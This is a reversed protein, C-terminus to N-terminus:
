WLKAWFATVLLNVVAVPTLFKWSFSMLQDYRFRPMTGRLWICFLMFSLVKLAFAAVGLWWPTLAAPVLPVSWGGFFLTALISGGLFMHAYEALFFLAFRMGSYETHFGAVLESEAEPLDFPTRNAEAVACILAIVFAVPQSFVFWWGDQQASMVERLSLSGSLLVISLLALGMPLEYSILQATARLSGMISYKSNSAWGALIVGYSGLSGMALLFLLAVPLESVQLKLSHGLITVDPGFPIVVFGIFAPLLALIPALRYTWKDVGDPMQVEKLFLKVGDAIPQGLGALPYRETFKFWPGIFPLTALIGFGVRNPGSRCQMRALVKREVWVIYAVSTMLVGILVGLKVLVLIM